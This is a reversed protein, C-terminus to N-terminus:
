QCIPYECKHEHDGYTTCFKNSCTHDELKHTTSKCRQCHMRASHGLGNCISCRHNLTDHNTEKNCITCFYTNSNSIYNGM